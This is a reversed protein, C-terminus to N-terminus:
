PFAIGPALLFCVGSKGTWGTESVSPPHIKYHTGVVPQFGHLDAESRGDVKALELAPLFKLQTRIIRMRPVGNLEGLKGGFPPMVIVMKAGAGRTELFELGFGHAVGSAFKGEQNQGPRIPQGLGRHQPEAAASASPAIVNNQLKGSNM